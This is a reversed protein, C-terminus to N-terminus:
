VVSKRDLPLCVHRHENIIWVSEVICGADTGFLQRPEHARVVCCTILVEILLPGIESSVPGARRFSRSVEAPVGREYQIQAQHLVLMSLGTDYTWSLTTSRKMFSGGM